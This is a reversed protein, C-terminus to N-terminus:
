YKNVRIPTIFSNKKDFANYDEHPNFSEFEPVQTTRPNCLRNYRNRISNIQKDFAEKDIM